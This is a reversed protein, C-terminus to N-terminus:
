PYPPKLNLRLIIIIAIPNHNLNIKVERKDWVRARSTGSDVPIRM